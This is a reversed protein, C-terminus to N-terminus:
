CKQYSASEEMGFLEWATVEAWGHNYVLCYDRSEVLDSKIVRLTRTDEELITMWFEDENLVYAVFSGDKTQIRETNLWMSDNLSMFSIAILFLALTGLLAGEVSEKRSDEICESRESWKRLIKNAEPLRLPDIHVVGNKPGSTQISDFQKSLEDIVLDRYPNSLVSKSAAELRTEKSRSIRAQLCAGCVSFVVGLLAFITLMSSLLLLLVIAWLALTTRYLGQIPLRILWLAVPYCLMSILLPFSQIVVGSILSGTSSNSVVGLATAVDGRSVLLIKLIFITASITVFLAAIRETLRERLHAGIQNYRVVDRIPPQFGKAISSRVANIRNKIGDAFRGTDM